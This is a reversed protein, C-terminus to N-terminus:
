AAQDSLVPAVHAQLSQRRRTQTMAEVVSLFAPAARQVWRRYASLIGTKRQRLLPALDFSGAAPALRAREGDSANLHQELHNVVPVVLLSKGRWAAENLSEFGATGTLGRSAAIMRLFKVRDLKHFSLTSDYHWALEV